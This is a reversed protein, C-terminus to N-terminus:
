DEPASGKRKSLTRGMVERCKDGMEKLEKQCKKGVTNAKLHEAM